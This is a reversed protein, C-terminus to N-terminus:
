KEETKNAIALGQTTILTSIQNSLMEYALALEKRTIMGIKKGGTAQFDEVKGILSKVTKLDASAEEGIIKASKLKTVKGLFAQQEAEAKIKAPDYKEVTVFEADALEQAEVWALGEVESKSLRAAKVFKSVLELDQTLSSGSVIKIIHDGIIEGEPSSIEKVDLWLVNNESGDTLKAYETSALAQVAADYNPTGQANHVFAKAAKVNGEFHAAAIKRIATDPKLTAETLNKDRDMFAATANVSEHVIPTEEIPADEPMPLAEPLVVTSDPNEPLIQALQESEARLAEEAFKVVEPLLDSLGIANLLQELTTEAGKANRALWPIVSKLYSEKVLEDSITEVTQGKLFAELGSQEVHDDAETKVSNMKNLITEVVSEKKEESEVLKQSSIFKEVAESIVSLPIHKPIKVYKKM